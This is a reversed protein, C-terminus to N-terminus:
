NCGCGGNGKKSGISISGERISQIYNEFSHKAAASMQMEPDNVYIRQYPKLTTCSMFLGGCILILTLLRKFVQKLNSTM